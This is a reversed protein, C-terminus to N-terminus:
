SIGFEQLPIPSGDPPAAARVRVAEREDESLAAWRERTRTLGPGAHLPAPKGIFRNYGLDGPDMGIYCGDTTRVVDVIRAPRLNLVDLLLTTADIQTPVATSTDVM